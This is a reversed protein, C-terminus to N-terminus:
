PSVDMAADDFPMTPRGLIEALFSETVGALPSAVFPSAGSAAADAFAREMAARARAIVPHASVDQVDVRLAPDTRMMSKILAFLEPSDALEVQSFDEQRLQHWAHGRDSLDAGTRVAILVGSM